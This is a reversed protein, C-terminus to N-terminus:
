YNNIDLTVIVINKFNLTSPIIDLKGLDKLKYDVADINIVSNEYIAVKEKGVIKIKNAKINKIDVVVKSPTINSGDVKFKSKLFKVHTDGSFDIIINNTKEKNTLLTMDGFRNKEPIKRVLSIIM